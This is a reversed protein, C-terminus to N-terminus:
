HKASVPPMKKVCPDISERYAAAAGVDDPPPVSRSTRIAEGADFGMEYSIRIITWVNHVWLRTLTENYRARATHSLLNEGLTRKVSSFTSEIQSRVHYHRLFEDPRSHFQHYKATWIPCGSATGLSNVKFPMYPELGLKWAATFNARSLYAKDGTVEAPRFGRKWVREVLPIFQPCDAGNEDTLNAGLVIQTRAGCVVHAKVFPHKRKQNHKEVNYWGLCSTCFGTSDIAITGGNELERLPWASEEILRRLIETTGDHNFLRSATSYNPVRPFLGSGAELEKVLQGRAGRSDATSDVYRAAFLLQTRLPLARRGRRGPPDLPEPVIQLLDWAHRDFLIPKAQKAADYAPWNRKGRPPPPVPLHVAPGQFPNLRRLVQLVHYCPLHRDHWDPCQCEWAGNQMKVRYDRDRTSSQVLFELDKIHRVGEPNASLADVARQDRRDTANDRTLM